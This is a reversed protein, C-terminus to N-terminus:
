YGGEDTSAWRLNERRNDLWDGNVHLVYPKGVPPKEHGRLVTMDLRVGRVMIVPGGAPGIPDPPDDTQAALWAVLDLWGQRDTTVEDRCESVDVSPGATRIGALLEEDHEIHAGVARLLERMETSAVVEEEAAATM